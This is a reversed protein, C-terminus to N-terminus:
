YSIAVAPVQGAAIAQVIQRAKADSLGCARILAEAARANVGNRHEQDAARRRAAAEDAAKAEQQRRLEAEAAEARQREAAIAADAEAKAKAEAAAKAKAAAEEALAAERDARAKEAKQRRLEALEAADAEAQVAATHASRLAAIKAAYAGEAAAQFERLDRGTLDIQELKAIRGQIEAATGTTLVDTISRVFGEAQAVRAKEADEWETLPRRYEEKLADLAECIMRRRGDVLAVRKKEDEVLSKGFADLATKTRAIRYAVSKIQERGKRSEMDPVIALVAARVNELASKIAEDSSYLAPSAEVFLEAPADLTLSEKSM